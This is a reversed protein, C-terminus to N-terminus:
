KVENLQWRSFLKIQILMREEKTMIIALIASLGALVFVPFAITVIIVDSMGRLLSMLAINFTMTIATLAAIPRLVTKIYYLSDINFLRLTIYPAYWNNTLLQAILTGAAIGWLGFYHGLIVSFAIKLIGSILAAWFFVIYGAAMTASALIVHHVELTLMALLTWLVPFGVFNGSGLWINVVNNGFVSLFTVCIIMLAMGYRVNRFLLTMFEDHERAAYAKSLFPTSSTVILMSFTALATIIKIIAEYPPISSTGITTAIIVNDTQLILIAGLNMAAWKFSPMAIKKFIAMSAEGRVSKLMPHQRYLAVWSFFRGVLGQIVWSGALGIIGYGLYLSVVSMILGLLETFSRIIRETAINGLGYLAAFGAGGLLNLSAGIIFIIWAAGVEKMNGQPAVKLLFIGGVILGTFFVFAATVQFFRLCTAILHAIEKNKSHEDKNKNGLLFSIERSITPSIGLDFYAIYYGISLFLFWTGALDKPLFHIILRVQIVAAIISIVIRGAGSLIGFYIKQGISM